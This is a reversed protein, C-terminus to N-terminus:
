PLDADVGTVTAGLAVEVRTALGPKTVGPHFYRLQSGRTTVAYEIRARGPAVGTLTWRGDADTTAAQGCVSGPTSLFVDVGSLPRGARDTVQGSVTAVADEVLDSAMDQGAVVDVERQQPGRCRLDTQVSWLGTGLRVAYRGESDTRVSRTTTPLAPFRPDVVRYGTSFRIERDPLPLGTSTTLRGTVLAPPPVVVDVEAAQGVGLEVVRADDESTASPAHVIGSRPSDVLVRHRGAALGDVEYRGARGPRVRAVEVWADDTQREVVVETVSGDSEGTEGRSGGATAFPESVAGRIRAAPMATLDLRLVEDEEVQVDEADDALAAEGVWWTAWDGGDPSM